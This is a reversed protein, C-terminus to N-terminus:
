RHVVMEDGHRAMIAPARYNSVLGRAVHDVGAFSEVKAGLRQNGVEWMVRLASNQVLRAEPDLGFALASSSQELPCIRLLHSDHVLHDLGMQDRVKEAFFIVLGPVAARFSCQGSM